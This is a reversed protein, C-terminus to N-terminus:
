RCDPRCCRIFRRCYFILVNFELTCIQLRVQSTTLAASTSARAEPLSHQISKNAISTGSVSLAHMGNGKVTVQPLSTARKFYTPILHDPIASASVATAGLALALPTVASIGKMAFNQHTSLILIFFDSCNTPFTTSGHCTNNSALLTLLTVTTHNTFFLLLLRTFSHATHLHIFFDRPQLRFAHFSRPSPILCSLAVEPPRM